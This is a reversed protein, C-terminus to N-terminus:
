KMGLRSPGREGEDESIGLESVRRQRPGKQPLGLTSLNSRSDHPVSSALSQMSLSPDSAFSAKREVLSSVSLKREAISAFSSERSGMSSAHSSGSSTSDISRLSLRSGRQLVADMPSLYSRSSSLSPASLRKRNYRGATDPEALASSLDCASKVGASGWGNEMRSLGELLPPPKASLESASGLGSDLSSYPNLTKLSESRTRTLAVKAAKAKEKQPEAAKEKEEPPSSKEGRLVDKIKRFVSIRRRQKPSPAQPVVPIIDTDPSDATAALAAEQEQVQKQMQALKARLLKEDAYTTTTSTGRRLSRNCDDLSRQFEILKAEEKRWHANVTRRSLKVSQLQRELAAADCKNRDALAGLQNTSLTECNNSNMLSSIPDTKPKNGAM